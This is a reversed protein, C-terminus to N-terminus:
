ILCWVDCVSNCLVICYSVSEYDDIIRQLQVLKLDKEEKQLECKFSFM